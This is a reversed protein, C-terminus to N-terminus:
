RYASGDEVAIGISYVRGVISVPAVLSPWRSLARESLIAGLFYGAAVLVRDITRTACGGVIRYRLQAQSSRLWPEM